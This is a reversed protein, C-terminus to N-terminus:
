QVPMQNKIWKSLLHRENAAFRVATAKGLRKSYMSMLLLPADPFLRGGLDKAIEDVALPSAAVDRFWLVRGENWEAPHLDGDFSEELARAREGSLWAWTVLGAPVRDPTLYCKFQKNTSVVRALGLASTLPICRYADGMALGHLIQGITV